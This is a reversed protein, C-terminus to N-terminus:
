RQAAGWSECATSSGNAKNRTKWCENRLWMWLVSRNTALKIELDHRSGKRAAPVKRRGLIIETCVPAAHSVGRVKGIRPSITSSIHQSPLHPLPPNLPRALSLSRSYPINLVCRSEIHTLVAEPSRVSSCPANSLLSVALKRRVSGEECGRGTELLCLAQNHIVLLALEGLHRRLQPRRLLRNVARQV